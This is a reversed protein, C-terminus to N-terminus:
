YGRPRYSRAEIRGLLIRVVTNVTQCYNLSGKPRGDAEEHAGYRFVSPSLNYMSPPPGFLTGKKEQLLVTLRSDGVKCGSRSAGWFGASPLFRFRFKRLMVWRCSNCAQSIRRIPRFVQEGDNSDDMGPYLQISCRSQPLEQISIRPSRAPSINQKMHRSGPREVGGAM